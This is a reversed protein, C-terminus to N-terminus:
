ARPVRPSPGGREGPPLALWAAEAEGLGALLAVQARMSRKSEASGKGGSLGWLKLSHNPDPHLLPMGAHDYLYAAVWDELNRQAELRGNGWEPSSSLQIADSLRGGAARLAQARLDGPTPQRGAKAYFTADAGAAWGVAEMVAFLIAFVVAAAAGAAGAAAAVATATAAIVAAAASSLVGIGVLVDAATQVYKTVDEVLELAVGTAKSVEEKSMAPVEPNDFQVGLTMTGLAYADRMERGAVLVVGPDLQVFDKDTGSASRQMILGRNDFIVYANQGNMDGIFFPRMWKEALYGMAKLRDGRLAGEDDWKRPKVTTADPVPPYWRQGQLVSQALPRVDPRLRAVNARLVGQLKTNLRRLKKAKSPKLAVAAVVGGGVLWAWIPVSM